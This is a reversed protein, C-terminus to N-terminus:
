DDGRGYTKVDHCQKCLRQLRSSDCFLSTVFAAIDGLYNMSRVGEIHDIEVEKSKLEVKGCCECPYWYSTVKDGKRSRPVRGRNLACTRLESKLWLLRLNNKFTGRLWQELKTERSRTKARKRAM